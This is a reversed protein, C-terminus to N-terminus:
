LSWGQNGPYRFNPLNPHFNAIIRSTHSTHIFKEM